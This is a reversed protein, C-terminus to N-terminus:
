GHHQDMDVGREMAAWFCSRVTTTIAVVAGSFVLLLM